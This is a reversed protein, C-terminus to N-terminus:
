PLHWGVLASRQLLEYRIRAALELPSRRHYHVDLVDGAVWGGAAACLSRDLMLTNHYLNFGCGRGFHMSFDFLCDPAEVGSLRIYKLIMSRADDRSLPMSGLAFGGGPLPLPTRFVPTNAPPPPSSGWGADGFLHRHLAYFPDHVALHAPLRPAVRAMPVLSGRSTKGLVSKILVGFADFAVDAMWLAGDCLESARAQMGVMLKLLAECLRAEVHDLTALYSYIQELQALSLTPAPVSVAPFARKLFKVHLLLFDEDEQTLNWEGLERSPVRLQSIIDSLYKSMNGRDIVYDACYVIVAEVTVPLPIIHPARAKMFSLYNDRRWRNKASGVALSVRAEELAVLTQDFSMGRYAEAAGSLELAVNPDRTQRVRKAAELVLTAVRSTDSSRSPHTALAAPLLAARDVMAQRRKGLTLRMVGDGGQGGWVGATEPSLVGGAALLPSPLAAAGGVAAAVPAGPAFWIRPEPFFLDRHALAYDRSM